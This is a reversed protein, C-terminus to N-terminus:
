RRRQRTPFRRGRNNDKHVVIREVYPKQVCEIEFQYENLLRSFNDYDQESILNIVKGEKGARATRGIRHVYDTPDNPIEYNYVHSVHDIHLGRAAVDTCVLVDAKGGDFMEMTRTRKNQAFGGHIAIAQIKNAKLTKAVLDTSWRTNCFVMVLKSNEHKILHVLLSM